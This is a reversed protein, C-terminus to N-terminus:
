IACPVLPLSWIKKWKKICCFLFQLFLSPSITFSVLLQPCCLKSKYHTMCHCTDPTLKYCWTAVKWRFNSKPQQKTVPLRLVCYPVAMGSHSVSSPVAPALPLGGERRGSDGQIPHASHFTSFTWIYLLSYYRLCGAQQHLFARVSRQQSGREWERSISERASVCFQACAPECPFFCATTYLAGADDQWKLAQRKRMCFLHLLLAWDHFCRCTDKNDSTFTHTSPNTHTHRHHTHTHVLSVVWRQTTSGDLPSFIFYPSCQMQNIHCPENMM